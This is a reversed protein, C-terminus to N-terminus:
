IQKEVRALHQKMFDEVYWKLIKGEVNKVETLFRNYLRRDIKAQFTYLDKRSGKSDSM